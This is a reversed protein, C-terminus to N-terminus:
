MTEVRAAACLRRLPASKVCKVCKKTKIGDECRRRKESLFTKKDTKMCKKKWCVDSGLKGSMTKIAMLLCPSVMLWRLVLTSFYNKGLLTEKKSGMFNWMEKRKNKEHLLNQCRMWEVVNCAPGTSAGVKVHSDATQYFPLFKQTFGWQHTGVTITAAGNSTTSKMQQMKQSNEKKFPNCFPHDALRRRWCTGSLFSLGAFWSGASRCTLQPPVLTVRTLDATWGCLYFLFIQAFWRKKRGM